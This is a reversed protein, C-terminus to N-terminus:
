FVDACRDLKSHADILENEVNIASREVPWLWSELSCTERDQM